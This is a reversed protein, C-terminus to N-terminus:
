RRRPRRWRSALSLEKWGQMTRLSNIEDLLCRADDRSLGRTVYGDHALLRAQLTIIRADRKAIADLTSM